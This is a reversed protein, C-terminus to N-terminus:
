PQPASPVAGKSNAPCSGNPPYGNRTPEVLTFQDCTRVMLRMMLRVPPGQPDGTKKRVYSVLLYRSSARRTYVAENFARYAIGDSLIPLLESRFFV